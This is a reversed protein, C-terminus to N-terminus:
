ITKEKQSNYKKILDSINKNNLYPIFACGFTLLPNKLITSLSRVFLNFYSEKEDILKRSFYNAEKEKYFYNAKLKFHNLLHHGIEHGLIFRKSFNNEKELLIYKREDRISAYPFVAKDDEIINIEKDKSLQRLGELSKADYKSKLGNVLDDITKKRNEPIKM